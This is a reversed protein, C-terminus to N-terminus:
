RASISWATSPWCGRVTRTQRRRLEALSGHRHVPRCLLLRRCLAGRVVDGSRHGAGAAAHRGLRDGGAGFLDQCPRGGQPHPHRRPLRAPLRRFLVHGDPRHRLRFVRGARRAARDAHGAARQRRAPHRRRHPAPDAPPHLVHLFRIRNRPRSGCYNKSRMMLECAM